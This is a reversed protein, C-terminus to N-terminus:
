VREGGHGGGGGLRFGPRGGCGGTGGLRWRLPWDVVGIGGAAMPLPRRLRRAGVVGVAGLGAGVRLVGGLPPAPGSVQRGPADRLAVPEVQLILFSSTSLVIFFRAFDSWFIYM